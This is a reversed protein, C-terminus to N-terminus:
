LSCTSCVEIYLRVLLFAGISTCIEIKTRSKGDTSYHNGFHVEAFIGPYYREIWQRTVAEIKHQRATVIHLQYREKLDLLAEYAGHVPRIDDAFYKSEFFIEM